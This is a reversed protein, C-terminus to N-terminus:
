AGVTKGYFTKCHDRVAAVAIEVRFPDFQIVM